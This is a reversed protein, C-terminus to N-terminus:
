EPCAPSNAINLSLQGSPCFRTENRKLHLVPCKLLEARRESCLLGKPSLVSANVSVSICLVLRIAKKCQVSLGWAVEPCQSNSVLGMMGPSSWSDLHGSLSPPVFAKKGGTGRATQNDERGGM